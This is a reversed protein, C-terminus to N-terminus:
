IRQEGRCRRFFRVRNGLSRIVTRRYGRGAADPDTLLAVKSGDIRPLSLDPRDLCREGICALVAADPYTQCATLFDPEGGSIIIWGLRSARLVRLGAPNALM